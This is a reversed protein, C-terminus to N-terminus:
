GAKAKGIIAKAIKEERKAENATYEEYTIYSM